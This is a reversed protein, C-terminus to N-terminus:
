DTISGLRDTRLLPVNYDMVRSVTVVSPHGYRNGIGASIWVESPRLMMLLDRTTSSGAGHHSAKLVLNKYGLSLLGDSRIRAAFLHELRAGADGMSLYLRRGYPVVYAAMMRNKNRGGNSEGELRYYPFCGTSSVRVGLSMLTQSLAIGRDTTLQNESIQVCGIPVLRALTVVGGAHDEDLHTLAIWSLSTIGHSALLRLWAGDSLAGPGGTDILGAGARKVVLASDGQGVDLQVVKESETVCRSVAVRVVIGLSLACLLLRLLGFARQSERFLFFVVFAAIFGAAVFSWGPVIWVASVHMVAFSLWKVLFTIVVCAVDMVLEVSRSCGLVMLGCATVLSPYLVLSFASLTVLSLIPTALSTVGSAILDCLATFIWSGFALAVHDGVLPALIGKKEGFLVDKAELALLGGGVALGYHLRGPAWAALRDGVLLARGIGILMDVSLAVILPSLIRWKFGLRRAITRLLVIIFPRLMGARLGSLLWVFIWTVFSITASLRVAMGAEIGTFRVLLLSFRGATMALSYLHIGAASYLHVFGLLRLLDAPAGPVGQNLLLKRAIGLGDYRELLSSIKERVLEISHVLACTATDCAEAEPFASVQFHVLERKPKEYETNAPFSTVRYRGSWSGCLRPPHEHTLWRMWDLRTLCIKRGDGNDYSAWCSYSGNRKSLSLEQCSDLTAAKLGNSSVLAFAAVMLVSSFSRVWFLLAFILGYPMILFYHGSYKLFVEVQGLYKEASCEDHDGPEEKPWSRRFGIEPDAFGVQFTITFWFWSFPIFEGLSSNRVLEAKGSYADVSGRM